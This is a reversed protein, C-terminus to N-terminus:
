QEICTIPIRDGYPDVMAILYPRDVFWEVLFGGGRTVNQFDAFNNQGSFVWTQTATRVEGETFYNVGPLGIVDIAGSNRPLLGSAGIAEVTVVMEGREGLGECVLYHQSTQAAAACPALAAILLAALRPMASDGAPAERMM